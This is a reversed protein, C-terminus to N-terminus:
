LVLDFDTPIGLLTQEPTEDTLSAVTNRDLLEQQEEASLRSRISDIVPKEMTCVYQIGSMRCATSVALLAEARQEPTMGTYLFSDHALFKLNQNGEAALTLDFCLTKVLQIGAKAESSMHIDISYRLNNKGTNNEIELRVENGPYFITMLSSFYEDLEELHRSISDLFIDTVASASEIDERLSAESASYTSYTKRYSQIRRYEEGWDQLQKKMDDLTEQPGHTKLFDELEALRKEAAQKQTTFRNRIDQLSRLEQRLRAPKNLIINTQTQLMDDFESSDQKPPRRNLPNLSVFYDDERVIATGAIAAEKARIDQGITAEHSTLVKIEFRKREAEQKLAECDDTIVFSSISQELDDILSALVATDKEADRFGFFFDRYLSDKEFSRSIRKLSVQRNRLGKKEEMLERDLGLLCCLTMMSAYESEKFGSRDYSRYCPRNRRAFRYFVSPWNTDRRCDDEGFCLGLMFEQMEYVTMDDDNVTVLNPYDTSRVATYEKGDQEFVLTFEWGKLRQELSDPVSTGLCFHLIPILLHSGTSERTEPGVQRSEIINLGDQFVVPRFSPQNAHLSLLKM